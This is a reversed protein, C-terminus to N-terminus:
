WCSGHTIGSSSEPRQARLVALMWLLGSSQHGDGSVKGTNAFAPFLTQPSYRKPFPAKKFRVTQVTYGQGQQLRREVHLPLRTMGLITRPPKLFKFM